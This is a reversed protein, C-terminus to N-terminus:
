HGHGDDNSHSSHDHGDHDSHEAATKAKATGNKKQCGAFMMTASFIAIVAVFTFKKM